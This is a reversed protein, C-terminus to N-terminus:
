DNSKRKFDRSVRKEAGTKPTAKPENAPERTDSESWNRYGRVNATRYPEPKRMSSHRSRKGNQSLMRLEVRTLHERLPTSDM